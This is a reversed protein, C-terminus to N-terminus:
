QLVTELFISTFFFIYVFSIESRLIAAAKKLMFVRARGTGVDATVRTKLTCPDM